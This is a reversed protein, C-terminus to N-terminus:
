YDISISTELTGENSVFSGVTITVGVDTGDYWKLSSIIDGEKFLDKDKVVYNYDKDINNSGDACILDILKFRADGNNYKTIENIESIIWLETRSKLTANIHWVMIGPVSPLGCERNSKLANVGTPTYLAIMYYEEFYSGGNTKSIIITDGTAEFSSLTTEYDMNVVVTPSTWGLIAKSYPDHDGQNAHMMAFRGVGGTVGGDAFDYYDALGLAHGTEHILAECNINVRLSNVEDIELSDLYEIDVPDDFFEISMWLYGHLSTDDFEENSEINYYYAWWMNSQEFDFTDYYPALYILYICDINWDNNQDYLSYDILNDYHKVADVLYKQEDVGSKGSYFNYATNTEYIDLVTANLNLKGYSAKQYYEKLSYWGTNGKTDNFATEIKEKIKTKSGYKEYNTNTFGIPIVLINVDGESPLSPKLYIDDGLEDLSQYKVNERIEPLYFLIDINKTYENYSIAINAMGNKSSDYNSAEVSYEGKELLSYSGDEDRFHVVLDSIADNLSIGRESISKNSYSLLLGYELYISSQKTLRAQLSDPGISIAVNKLNCDVNSSLKECMQNYFAVEDKSVFLEFNNGSRDTLIVTEATTLNVKNFSVGELNVIDNRDYINIRSLDQIDRNKMTLSGLISYDKKDDVIIRHLGNLIDIKGYINICQGVKAGYPFGIGKFLVMIANEQSTDTIWVMYDNNPAPMYAKVYGSLNSVEEGQSKNYCDLIYDAPFGNEPEREYEPLSLSTIGTKTLWLNYVLNDNYDGDEISSTAKVFLNGSIIELEFSNFSERKWVKQIIGDKTGWHESDQDYFFSKGVKNLLEDKAKYKNEDIQEFDKEDIVYQYKRMYCQNMEIFIDSDDITSYWNNNRKNLYIMESPDKIEGNDPEYYIEVTYSYYDGTEEDKENYIKKWYRIDEYKSFVQNNLLLDDSYQTLEATYSSIDMQNIYYNLSNEKPFFENKWEDETGKYNPHYKIYLEYPSLKDNDDERYAKIGSDIEDIFVNGNDGIKFVHNEKALPFTLTHGDSFTITYIDNEEDSSTKNVEVIELENNGNNKCGVLNFTFILAIFALFVVVFFMKKM